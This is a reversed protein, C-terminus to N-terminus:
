FFLHQRKLVLYWKSFNLTSSKPGLVEDLSLSLQSLLHQSLQLSTAQKCGQLQSFLKKGLVQLHRLVLNLKLALCDWGENWLSQVQLNPKFHTCIPTNFLKQTLKEIIEHKIIMLSLTKMSTVVWLHHVLQRLPALPLWLVTRSKSTDRLPHYPSSTHRMLLSVIRSIRDLILM